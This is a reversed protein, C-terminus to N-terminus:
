TDEGETSINYKITLYDDFECNTCSGLGYDIIKNSIGVVLAYMHTEYKIKVFFISYVNRLKNNNEINEENRFFTKFVCCGYM